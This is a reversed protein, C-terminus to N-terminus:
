RHLQQLEESDDIISQCRKCWDYGCFEPARHLLKETSYPNFDRALLEKIRRETYNEDYDPVNSFFEKIVHIPFNNQLLVAICHSEMEHSQNGYEFKDEREHFRWVCPRDSTLFRADGLTLDDNSESRYESVRSWNVDSTGSGSGYKHTTGTATQVHQAIIDGAEESPERTDWPVERAERTLREYDSPQLSELEDLTVPVCYRSEGFSRSAAGHLTNPVRCLRGLDSSTVDVYEHLDSLGTAESLQHVLETAYDNMGAVYQGFDGIDPDLTPFDLFLHIGKHGSLSARWASARNGGNIFSAVRRARVLLHSMDRRWADRDGSGREYEGDDFDFDIFLTNVEPIEDDKTHGRPFSYVSIFPSDREREESDLLQRITIPDARSWKQNRTARRPYDPAWTQLADEILQARDTM